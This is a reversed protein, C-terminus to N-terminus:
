NIEMVYQLLQNQDIPPIFQSNGTGTGQHPIEALNPTKPLFVIM